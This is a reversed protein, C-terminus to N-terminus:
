MQGQNNRAIDLAETRERLSQVFDVNESEGHVKVLRDALWTLFPATRLSAGMDMADDYQGLRKLPRDTRTVLDEVDTWQRVLEALPKRLRDQEAMAADWKAQDIFGQLNETIIEGITNQRLADLEWSEDGFQERYGAFRSDDEKAPNPPPGYKEVQDMNLAIRRVEVGM